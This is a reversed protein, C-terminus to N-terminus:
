CEQEKLIKLHEENDIDFPVVDYIIDSEISDAYLGDIYETEAQSMEGVTFGDYEAIDAWTQVGHFGEYSDRDEVAYDYCFKLASQEDRAEIAIKYISNTANCGYIGFFKM